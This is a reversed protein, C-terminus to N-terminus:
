GADILMKRITQGTCTGIIEAIEKTTKMEDFYLARIYELDYKEPVVIGYKKCKKHITSTSIGLIESAEKKNKGQTILLNEILEKSIKKKACGKKIGHLNLFKQLTWETMDLEKKLEELTLGQEVYLNYLVDYGPDKHNGKM